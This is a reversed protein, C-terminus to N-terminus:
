LLLASMASVESLWGEQSTLTLSGTGGGNFLHLKIHQQELFQSIRKRKSRIDRVFVKKLVKVIPNLVKTFPNSDPLGIISPYWRILYAIPFPCQSM